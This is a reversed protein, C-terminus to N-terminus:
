SNSIYTITGGISLNAGLDAATARKLQLSSGTVYYAYLAITSSNGAITGTYVELQGAGAYDTSQLSGQYGPQNASTFPLGTITANGVGTNVSTVIDFNLVVLNGTKIYNGIQTTYTQSGQTTAFQLTPTWSGQSQTTAATYQTTADAFTISNATVSDVNSISYGQGDINGTLINNFAGTAGTAGQPGTSGTAGPVTSDAGTAGTAGDM